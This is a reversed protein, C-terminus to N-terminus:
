SKVAKLGDIENKLTIAEDESLGLASLDAKGIVHDNVDWTQKLGRAKCDEASRMSRVTVGYTKHGDGGTFLLHPGDIIRAIQNKM